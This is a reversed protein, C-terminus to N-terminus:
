GRSQAEQQTARVSGFGRAVSKGFEGEALNARRGALDVGRQAVSDNGPGIRGFQRTSVIDAIRKPPIAACKNAQRLPLFADIKRFRNLTPTRVYHVGAGREWGSRERTLGSKTTGSAQARASDFHEFEVVRYYPHTRRLLLARVALSGGTEPLGLMGRRLFNGNRKVM